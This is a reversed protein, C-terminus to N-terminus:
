TDKGFYIEAAKRCGYANNGYPIINLYLELIKEKDYARELRIALILEKVKRTYSKEPSLFTNKVYQQTITSGGRPAGIGFVEYLMAKIIGPIDYGGHKWFLDDEIIITSDILYQSIDTFDVYERNEEGHITYLLNEERDFIETSQAATLNELDTVDPLGISLIGIIGALTIIGLLTFGVATTLTWFAIKKYLSVEKHPLLRRLM